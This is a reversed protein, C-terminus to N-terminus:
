RQLLEKLSALHGKAMGLSEEAISKAAPASQLQEVIGAITEIDKQQYAIAAGVLFDIELDHLDTFEMPFDGTHIPAEADIQMRTIRDVLVDQDAAVTDLTEAVDSRGPPVYPRSFKLYQPFSRCLIALLQNLTAATAPQNM